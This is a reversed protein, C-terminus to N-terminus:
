VSGYVNCRTKDAASIAALILRCSCCKLVINGSLCAGEKNLVDASGLRQERQRHVGYHDAFKIFLVFFVVTCEFSGSMCMNVLNGFKLEGSTNHEKIVYSNM